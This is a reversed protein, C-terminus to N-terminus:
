VDPGCADILYLVVEGANLIAPQEPAIAVPSHQEQHVTILLIIVQVIRDKVGIVLPEQVGAGIRVQAKIVRYIIVYVVICSKLVYVLLRERLFYEFELRLEVVSEVDFVLSAGCLGILHEIVRRM